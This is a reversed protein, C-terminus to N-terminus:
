ELKAQHFSSKSDKRLFGVGSNPKVERDGEDFSWYEDHGRIRSASLPEMQSIEKAEEDCNGPWNPTTM